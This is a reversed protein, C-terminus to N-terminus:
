ICKLFRELTEPSVKFTERVQKENPNQNNWWAKGDPEIVCSAPELLFYSRLQEKTEVKVVEEGFWDFYETTSVIAPIHTYGRKHHLAYLRAVGAPGAQVDRESHLVVRVPDIHNTNDIHELIADLFGYRHRLHNPNNVWLDMGMDTLKYIPFKPVYYATYSM